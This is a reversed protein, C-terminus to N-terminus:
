EIGYTGKGPILVYSADLIYKWTIPWQPKKRVPKTSLNNLWRILNTHCARTICTNVSALSVLWWKSGTVTCWSSCLVAHCLPPFVDGSLYTVQESHLFDGIQVSDGCHARPVCKNVHKGWAVAWRNRQFGQLDWAQQSWFHLTLNIKICQQREFEYSQRGKRHRPSLPLPSKYEFHRGRCYIGGAWDHAKFNRQSLSSRRNSETLVIRLHGWSGKKGIVYNKIAKTVAVLNAAWSAAVLSM